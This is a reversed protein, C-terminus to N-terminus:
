VGIQRDPLFVRALTLGPLTQYLCLLGASHHCNMRSRAFFAQGILFFDESVGRDAFSSM